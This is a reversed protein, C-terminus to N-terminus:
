TEKFLDERVIKNLIVGSAEKGVWCARDEKGPM